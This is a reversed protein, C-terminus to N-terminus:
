KMSKGYDTPIGLKRMHAYLTKRSVKLMEAAKKKDGNSIDIAAKIRDGENQYEGIPNSPTGFYLDDKRILKRNVMTVTRSLIHFLERLNKRWIFSTLSEKAENSLTKEPLKHIACISKIMAAAIDPIDTPDDILSPIRIIHGSLVQLIQYPCEKKSVLEELNARTSCIIAGEFHVNKGTPSTFTPNNIIRALVKLANYDLKDIEHIYITGGNAQMMMSEINQRFLEEAKMGAFPWSRESSGTKCNAYIFPCARRTSRVHAIQALSLKCTGAAGILLIPKFKMERLRFRIEKFQQRVREVWKLSTNDEFMSCLPLTLSDTEQGTHHFLQDEGLKWTETTLNPLCNLEITMRCHLNKQASAFQSVGTAAPDLSTNNIIVCSYKDSSIAEKAEKSDYIVDIEESVIPVYAALDQLDIPTLSYILARRSTNQPRTTPFDPRTVM